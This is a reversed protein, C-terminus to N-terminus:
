TPRVAGFHVAAVILIHDVADSGLPLLVTEHSFARGTPSQDMSGSFALPEGGHVLLDYTPKLLGAFGPLRQELESVKLGQFSMGLVQVLADGMVRYEYDQGGDMVRVLATNRLYAAMDRPPMQDRTPFRRAGKRETWLAVAKRLLPNVIDGVPVKQELFPNGSSDM